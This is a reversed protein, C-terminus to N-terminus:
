DRDRGVSMLRTLKALPNQAVRCVNGGNGINLVAAGIKALGELAITHANSARRPVRQGLENPAWELRRQWTLFGSERFLQAGRAQLM